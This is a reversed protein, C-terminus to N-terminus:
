KDLTVLHLDFMQGASSGKFGKVYPHMAWVEAEIYLPVWPVYVESLEVVIEDLKRQWEVPDLEARLAAYKADLEPECFGTRIRGNEIRSCEFHNNYYAGVFEGTGYGAGALALTFDGAETAANFAALDIVRSTVNMGYGRLEEAIFQAPLEWQPQTLLEIPETVQSLM